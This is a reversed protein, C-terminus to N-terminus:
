RGAKVGLAALLNGVSASLHAPVDLQIRLHGDSARSVAVDVRKFGAMGDSPGVTVDLAAPVADATKVRTARATAAKM